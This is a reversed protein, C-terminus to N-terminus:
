IYSLFMCYYMSIFILQYGGILYILNLGDILEHVIYYYVYFVIFYDRRGPYCIKVSKLASVLDSQDLGDNSLLSRM